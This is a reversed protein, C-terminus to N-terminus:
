DNTSERYVTRSRIYTYEYDDDPHTLRHILRNALHVGIRDNNVHVSTLAINNNFEQNDDFGSVYLDDPVSINNKQCYQLVLSAVYDNVCVIADSRKIIRDLYSSITEKYQDIGIPSILNDVENVSLQHRQMAKLYGLYREKNTQAYAIDGIFHIKKKGSEIMHEVIEETNARGEILFLDGNLTSFITNTPCDLFVKTIPLDNLASFLRPDYINMVIIGSVTGDTLSSPLTFTDSYTPPLYVYMLNIGQSALTIAQYHIISMWFNSTEPRSVVVAVNSIKKLSDNFSDNAVNDVPFSNEQRGQNLISVPYGMEVAKQLIMRKTDPAIGPKDNVAKWVTVRSINLADAVQQYTVKKM